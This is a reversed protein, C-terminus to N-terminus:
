DSTTGLKMAGLVVSGNARSRVVGAPYRVKLTPFLGKAMSAFPLSVIITDGSKVADPIGEPAGYVTQEVPISHEPAKNVSSMGIRAVGSSELTLIPEGCVSDAVFVGPRTEELNVFNESTHFDVNHPTLNWITM